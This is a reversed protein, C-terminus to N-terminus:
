GLSKQFIKKEFNMKAAHNLIQENPDAGQSLIFIIPTVRDSNSFLEEMLTMPSVAYQRGIMREIYTTLAEIFKQQNMLKIILLQHFLKLHSNSGFKDPILDFITEQAALEGNKLVRWQDPSELISELLGGFQDKLKLQMCYALDWQQETLVDHIERHQYYDPQETKDYVGQGRLLLNYSMDDILGSNKYISTCILFSFIIKDQEFLGSCVNVYINRTLKDILQPIIQTM